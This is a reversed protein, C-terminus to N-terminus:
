GGRARVRLRARAGARGGRRVGVGGERDGEDEGESEGEGYLVTSSNVTRPKPHRSSRESSFLQLLWQLTAANRRATSCYLLRSYILRDSVIM